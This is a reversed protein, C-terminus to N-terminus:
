RRNEWTLVTLSMSICSEGQPEDARKPYGSVAQPLTFSSLWHFEQGILVGTAKDDLPAFSTNYCHWEYCSWNAWITLEMWLQAGSPSASLKPSIRGGLVSAFQWWAAETWFASWGDWYLSLIAPPNHLMLCNSLHLKWRDCPTGGWSLPWRIIIIIIILATIHITVDDDYYPFSSYLPCPTGVTLEAASFPFKSQRKLLHAFWVWVAVRRLLAADTLSRPGEADQSVHCSPALFFRDFIM